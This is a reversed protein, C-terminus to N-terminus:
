PHGAAGAALQAYSLNMIAKTYRRTEPSMSALVSAVTPGTQHVPVQQYGGGLAGTAIRMPTLSMFSPDRKADQLPSGPYAPAAHSVNAKGSSAAGSSGNDFAFALVIWTVVAALAAVLGILGLLRSRRIQVTAPITASASMVSRREPQVTVAPVIRDFSLGARRNADAIAAQAPGEFQCYCAEDKLVITSGLYHVGASETWLNQTAEELETLRRLLDSESLGPLYREVVYVM